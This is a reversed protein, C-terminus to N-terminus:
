CKIWLSNLFSHCISGTTFKQPKPLTCIRRSKFRKHPSISGLGPKNVLAPQVTKQKDVLWSLFQQSAPLHTLSACRSGSGGDSSHAVAGLVAPRRVGLTGYSQTGMLHGRILKWTFATHAKRKHNPSFFWGTATGLPHKWEELGTEAWFFLRRLKAEVTNEGKGQRTTEPM